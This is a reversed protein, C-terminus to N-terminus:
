VIVEKKFSMKTDTYKLGTEQMSFFIHITVELRVSYYCYSFHDDKPRVKTIDFDKIVDVKPCDGEAVIQGQVMALIAFIFVLIKM